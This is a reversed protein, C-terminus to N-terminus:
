PALIGSPQRPIHQSRLLSSVVGEISPALFGAFIRNISPLGCESLITLLKM